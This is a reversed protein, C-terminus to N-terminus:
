ESSQSVSMCSATVAAISVTVSRLVAIHSVAVVSM